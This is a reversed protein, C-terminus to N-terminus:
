SPNQFLKRFSKRECIIDATASVNSVDISSIFNWLYNKLIVFNESSIFVKALFANEIKQEILQFNKVSVGNSDVLNELFLKNGASKDM